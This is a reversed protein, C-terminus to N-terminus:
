QLICFKTCWMKPEKSGPVFFIYVAIAAFDSHQVSCQLMGIVYGFPTYLTAVAAIKMWVLPTCLTNLRSIFKTPSHLSGQLNSKNGFTHGKLLKHGIDFAVQTDCPGNLSQFSM